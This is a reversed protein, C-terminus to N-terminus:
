FSIIMDAHTRWGIYDKRDTVPVEYNGGIRIHDNVVYRVGASILAINGSDTSGFNLIDAGEFDGATRNGNSITAYGNFEVTPFLNPFIEYNATASYHFMSSDHDGDVAFNPGFSGQLGFKDFAKSGTAFIDVFGSGNGQLRIGSSVLTGTPPEYEVGVTFISNAQADSHLAYKFGLSINAFGDDDELGSKFNANAFGDKSAIFGLRETLAVRVEAAYLNINGGTSAFTSAIDTYQHILRLETTIYPTENFLPNAIPPAYRKHKTPGEGLSGHFDSELAWTPNAIFMGAILAVKLACRLSM